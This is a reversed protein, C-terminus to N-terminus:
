PLGLNAGGAAQVFHGAKDSQRQWWSHRQWWSVWAYSALVILLPDMPHRFGSDPHTVYYVDPFFLLVLLYPMGIQPVKRLVKYLGALSLFTFSSLCVINEPDLPEERLYQRDFSWFGTWIFVVRRISRVLFIGPHAKIFGLAMERKEAMYGLEGLRQLEAVEAPNGAPHVQGNWWHLDNGLNGVCVELWFGDKFFVASHFTRYNRILWPAVTVAMALVAAMFPRAWGKSQQALRFGCWGGLLPAVALIVPNTLATLGFLTGFGAWAGIRDSSELYLAIWFLLSMLLALFSHYWMNDASFRVAYPLFAWAWASLRATRVGFGKRAIFFIPVCTLASLLSNLTLFALASGESYIGFIAFIRAVLYPFVPTLLATPGTDAWYPNAFQHDAAISRAIRGIEYGFEWHDRGPALFDRYVLLAVVMRLAFAVVIASTLSRGLKGRLGVWSTAADGASAWRSRLGAPVLACRGARSQASV